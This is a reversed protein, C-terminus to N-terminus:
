SHMSGVVAVAVYRIYGIYLITKQPEIIRWFSSSVCLNAMNIVQSIHKKIINHLCM